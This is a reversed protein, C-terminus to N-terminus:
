ILTPFANLQRNTLEPHNWIYIGTSIGGGFAIGYLLGKYFSETYLVM